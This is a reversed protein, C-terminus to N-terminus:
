FFVTLWHQVLIIVTELHFPFFELFGRFSLNQNCTKPNNSIGQSRNLLNLYECLCALIVRIVQMRMSPGDFHLEIKPLLLKNGLLKSKQEPFSLIAKLIFVINLVLLFIPIHCGVKNMMKDFIKQNTFARFIDNLRHYGIEFKRNRVFAKVFVQVVLTFLQLGIDCRFM